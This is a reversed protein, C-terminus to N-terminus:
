RRRDIGASISRATVSAMASVPAVDAFSRPLTIFATIGFSAPRATSPLVILSSTRRFSPAHFVLGKRDIARRIANFPVCLGRM